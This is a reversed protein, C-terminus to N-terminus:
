TAVPVTIGAQLVPWRLQEGTGVVASWGSEAPTASNPNVSKVRVRYLGKPLTTLYFTMMRTASNYSSSYDKVDKDKLQETFGSTDESLDISPSDVKYADFTYKEAPPPLHFRPSRHAPTSALQNDHALPKCLCGRECVAM